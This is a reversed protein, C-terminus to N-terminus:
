RMMVIMPKVQNTVPSVHLFPTIIRTPTVISANIGNGRMNEATSRFTFTTMTGHPLCGHLKPTVTVVPQQFCHLRTIRIMPKTTIMRIAVLVRTPRIIITVMIAPPVNTKLPRMRGWYHITIMTFLFCRQIGTLRQPIVPYVIRLCVWRIITQTPRSIITRRTVHM